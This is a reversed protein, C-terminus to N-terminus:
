SYTFISVTIESTDSFSITFTDNGAAQHAVAAQHVEEVPSAAAVVRAGHGEM